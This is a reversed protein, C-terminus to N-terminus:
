RQISKVFVTKDNYTDNGRLFRIDDKWCYLANEMNDKGTNMRVLWDLHSIIELRTMAGREIISKLLKHRQERSYGISQNVTYGLAALKSQLSLDNYKGSLYQRYQSESYIMCCPAGLSLLLRYDAEYMYNVDCTRCHYASIKASQKRGNKDIYYIIAAINELAHNERICHMASVRVIFEESSITRSPLRDLDSPRITDSTNDTVRYWRRHNDCKVQKRLDNTLIKYVLGTYVALTRAIQWTELGPREKLLM